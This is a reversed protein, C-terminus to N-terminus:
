IDTVYYCKLIDFIEEHDWHNYAEAFELQPIVFAQVEPHLRSYVYRFRMEETPLHAYGDVLIKGKIEHIWAKLNHRSDLVPPDRLKPLEQAAACNSHDPRSQVHIALHAQAIDKTVRSLGAELKELKDNVDTVMKETEANADENDQYMEYVDARLEEVKADGDGRRAQMEAHVKEIKACLKNVEADVHTVLQGYLQGVAAQAAASPHKPATIKTM